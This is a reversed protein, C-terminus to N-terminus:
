CKCRETAYKWRNNEIMVEKRFACRAQRLARLRESASSRNGYMLLGM